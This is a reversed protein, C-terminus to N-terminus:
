FYTKLYFDIYVIAFDDFAPYYIFTTNLLTYLELCGYFWLIIAIIQHRDLLKILFHM